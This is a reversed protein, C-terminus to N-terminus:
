LLGFVLSVVLCRIRIIFAVLFSMFLGVAVPRVNDHRASVTNNPAVWALAV